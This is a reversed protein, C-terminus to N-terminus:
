RLFIPYASTKRIESVHYKGGFTEITAQVIVQEYM